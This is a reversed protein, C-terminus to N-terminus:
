IITFALPDVDINKGDPGKIKIDEFIYIDGPEALNILELSKDTFYSGNVREKFVGLGSKNIYTVTYEMVRFKADVRMGQMDANLERQKKFITAPLQGGYSNYLKARPKPLDEVKFQQEAVKKFGGGQDPVSLTVTVFGPRYVRAFFDKGDYSIKGQSISVNYNEASFEPHYVNIPNNIGVYILDYDRHSINPKPNVVTYDLEFTHEKQPSERVQEVQEEQAEGIGEDPYRFKVVGKIKFEGIQDTSLSIEGVGEKFIFSDIINNNQDYTYIVATKIVEEPTGPITVKVTAEEGMNFVDLRKEARELILEDKFEERSSPVSQTLVYSIGAEARQYYKNVVISEALRVDNQFKTLLAIVAGLPVNDFFYKEWKYPMGTAKIVTDNTILVTDLMTQEHADLYNMLELKTRTLVEKTEIAIGDNIMRRTPITADIAKKLHHYDGYGGSRAILDTKISDLYEVASDSIAKINLMDRYITSFRASDVKSFQAVQQLSSHNRQDLRYNARELTKNLDTFAEIFEVPLNLVIMGILVLYLLNILKQRLPNTGRM